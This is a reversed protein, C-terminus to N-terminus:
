TAASDRIKAQSEPSGTHNVYNIASRLMNVPSMRRDLEIGVRRGYDEIDTKSKPNIKHDTAWDIVAKNDMEESDIVGNNDKPESDKVKVPKEQAGFQRYSEPIALLRRVHDKDKIECIHPYEKTISDPTKTKDPAFHYVATPFDVVTGGQRKLTCEIIM